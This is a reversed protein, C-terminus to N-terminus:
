TNFSQLVDLQTAPLLYFIALQGEPFLISSQRCTVQDDLLFGGGELSSSSDLGM